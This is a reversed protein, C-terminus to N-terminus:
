NATTAPTTPSHEPLFAVHAAMDPLIRPDVTKFGIRVAVTGKNRDATPVVASVFAPIEWDPYANLQVSAPQQPHIRGIFSEDVNVEVELSSMDVLTGIGTRTFGGAASVPSVIEGPQAAKDVIVGSFPARVTTDDEARQAVTLAGRAMALNGEAVVVAAQAADYASKSTQLAQASILGAAAQKRNSDYIPGIDEAAARAAALAATSQIVGAASQQVGARANSDDLKAIIAGEEVRQGVEIFLQQLKGTAKASVTAKRRAVVFGSADLMAVDSSVPAAPQGATANAVVPAAAAVEAPVPKPKALLLWVVTAALALVLVSLGAVMWSRASKRSAEYEHNAPQWESRDLRLEDLLGADTSRDREATLHPQTANM